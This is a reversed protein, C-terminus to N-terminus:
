LLECERLIGWFICLLQLESVRFAFHKSACVAGFVGGPRLSSLPSKQASFSCGVDCRRLGFPQGTGMGQLKLYTRHRLYVYRWPIPATRVSHADTHSKPSDKGDNGSKNRCDMTSKLSFVRPCIRVMSWLSLGQSSPSPSVTIIRICAQGM